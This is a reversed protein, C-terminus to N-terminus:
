SASMARTLQSRGFLSECLVVTPSVGNASAVKYRYSSVSPCCSSPTTPQATRSFSPFLYVCLFLPLFFGRRLFLSLFCREGPRLACSQSPDRSFGFTTSPRAFGSNSEHTTEM